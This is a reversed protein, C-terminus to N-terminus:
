FLRALREWTTALAESIVKTDALVPMFNTDGNWRPVIHLHVHGVLGAGAVRGLNMGVNIADPKLERRLVSVARPLLAFLERSEAPTLGTIDAVHRYPTIMLHGNNYPYRNLIILVKRGRFLVLNKRDKGVSKASKQRAARCLFCGKPQKQGIYASRWPSFLHKM